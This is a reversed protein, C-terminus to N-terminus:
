LQKMYITEICKFGLREYVSKLKDPMSNNLHIMLLREAGRSKAIKELHLLLSLGKGRHEEDVYWFAESCTLVGDELSPFFVFGIAGIIKDDRFLGLIEGNKSDLLNKWRNVWLAKNEKTIPVKNYQMIKYFNQLIEILESLQETTNINKIM